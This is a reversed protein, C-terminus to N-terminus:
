MVLQDSCFGSCVETLDSSTVSVLESKQHVTQGVDLELRTLCYFLYPQIENDGRDCPETM